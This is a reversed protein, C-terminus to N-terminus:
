LVVKELLLLLSFLIDILLVSGYKIQIIWPPANLVNVRNYRFHSSVTNRVTVFIFPSM